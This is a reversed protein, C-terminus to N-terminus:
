FHTYSKAVFRIVIILRHNAVNISCYGDYFHLKKTNSYPTPYLYHLNKNSLITISISMM